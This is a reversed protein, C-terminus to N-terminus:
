RERHQQYLVRKEILDFNARGYMVRKLTKLRNIQGELIGNNWRYTLANKVADYDSQIRKVFRHMEVMKNQSAQSIWHDLYHPLRHRIMVQFTQILEYLKQLQPHRNLLDDLFVWKSRKKIELSSQWLWKQLKMRSLYRKNQKGKRKQKRLNAMYHSVLSFSGNYGLSILHEYVGQATVGPQISAHIINLYPDLKSQHKHKGQLPVQETQIYKKVTRWNVKLIDAIATYSFGQRGFSKVQEMLQKKQRERETERPSEPVFSSQTSSPSDQESFPIPIRSGVTQQLIREIRENFNHVLHWLDTVQLIDANSEKIANKFLRSGDRSIVKIKSQKQLWQQVAESTFNRLLALPRHTKLDCIIVGYKRRKLFAWEDIGIASTSLNPNVPTKRILRLITDASVPMDMQKSLKSGQEASTSFAISRLSEDMRITRRAYPKLLKTGRETFIRQECPAHDCFFKRVILQLKVKYDAIPLDRVMRCYRSHIRCSTQGCTPCSSTSQKSQLILFLDKQNKDKHIYQLEWLNGPLM